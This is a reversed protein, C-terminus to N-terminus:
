YFNEWSLSSIAKVDPLFKPGFLYSPNKSNDYSRLTYEDRVSQLSDKKEQLKTVHHRSWLHTAPSPWNNINEQIIHTVHLETGTELLMYVAVLVPSDNFFFCTHDSLLSDVMPNLIDTVM